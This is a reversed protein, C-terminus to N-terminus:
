GVGEEDERQGRCEPYDSRPVRQMKKKELESKVFCTRRVLSRLEQDVRPEPSDPRQQQIRGDDSKKFHLPPEISHNSKMSVCSPEPGPGPGPELSDPTSSSSRLKPRARM